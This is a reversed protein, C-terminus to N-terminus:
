GGLETLFAWATLIRISQYQNLALPDKDGTVIFDANVALANAIVHDDDPDRCIPDIEPLPAAFLRGVEEL